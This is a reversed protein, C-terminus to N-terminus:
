MGNRQITVLNPFSRESCKREKQQHRSQKQKERFLSRRQNKDLPVRKRQPKTSNCSACCDQVYRFLNFIDNYQTNRTRNGVRWEPQCYKIVRDKCYISSSYICECECACLICLTPNFNRWQGLLRDGSCLDVRHHVCKIHASM